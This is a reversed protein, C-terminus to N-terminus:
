FSMSSIFWNNLSTFEAISYLHAHEKDKCAFWIQEKRFLTKCDLLSIDHVTAILQAKENLENNFLALIGRTLKFHLSNDLEDIVLIRNNELADIVYSALAAIKKTGTSDFLIGPVKVGNYVSTLHLMEMLPAAASLSNEQPKREMDTKEDSLQIKLEDEGAYHFDELPTEGLHANKRRLLLLASSALDNCCIKGQRKGESFFLEQLSRLLM